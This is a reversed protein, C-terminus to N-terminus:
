EARRLVAHLVRVLHRRREESDVTVAATEEEGFLVLLVAQAFMIRCATDATEPPRHFRRSLHSTFRHAMDKMTRAGRAYPEPDARATVMFARFGSRRETFVRLTLDLLRALLEEPDDLNWLTQM